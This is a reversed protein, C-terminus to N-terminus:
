GGSSRIVIRENTGNAFRQWGAKGEGNIIKERTSLLAEIEKDAEEQTLIFSVKGDFTTVTTGVAEQTEKIREDIDEVTWWVIPEAWWKECDIYFYDVDESIEVAVRYMGAAAMAIDAESQTM